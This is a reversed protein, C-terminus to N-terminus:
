KKTESSGSSGSSPTKPGGLPNPGGFGKGNSRKIAEAMMATQTEFEDAHEEQWEKARKEAARQAVYKSSEKYKSDIKKYDIQAQKKISDEDIKLANELTKQLKIGDKTDTYQKSNELNIQNTLNANSYSSKETDEIQRQIQGMKTIDHENSAKEMQLQLTQLKKFKENEFTEKEQHYKEQLEKIRTLKDNEFQTQKEMFEKYAEQYIKNNEALQKAYLQDFVKKFGTSNEALEVYSEEKKLYTDKIGKKFDEKKADVLARGGFMGAKGKQQLVDAYVGQRQKNFQGKKGKWGNIAGYLLGSKASAGMVAAGYMGGLGGAVAGITGKGVYNIAKGLPGSADLKGAIGLKLNGSDIGIVNSILKPAQKAFAFFGLVIIVFGFFGIDVIDSSLMEGRFCKAALFVVLLMVFIRIFVEMYTALTAKVWNDFVSKKNPIIRMMIPIPAIIQYFGLKVVRIGLDLCFSLLCYILFGGCLTSVIPIYSVNDDDVVSEAFLGIKMFNGYKGAEIESTLEGWTPAGSFASFIKGWIQLANTTPNTTITWFDGEESSVDDPISLFSELMMLSITNGEKSIDVEESDLILKGIIDDDVIYTQLDRAYRFISPVLSLLVLSIVINIAIKSTDKISDPNVLTKLLSYTVFFLMFIGIIVYVRTSVDSFFGSQFIQSKALSEYLEFFQAVLFYVIGDILLFLGTLGYKFISGFM